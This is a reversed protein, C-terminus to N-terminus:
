KTVEEYIDRLNAIMDRSIHECGFLTYEADKDNLLGDNLAALAGMVVSMRCIMSYIDEEDVVYDREADETENNQQSVVKLAETKM